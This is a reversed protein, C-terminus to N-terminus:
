ITKPSTQGVSKSHYPPCIRGRSPQPPKFSIHASCLAPGAAQWHLHKPPQSGTCTNATGLQPESGHAGKLVSICAGPVRTWPSDEPLLYSLNPFSQMSGLDKPRRMKGGTHRLKWWQQLTTCDPAPHVRLRVWCLPEEVGSTVRSWRSM